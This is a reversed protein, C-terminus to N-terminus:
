PIFRKANYEEFAIAVRNASLALSDGKSRRFRLDISSNSLAVVSYSALVSSIMLVVNIPNMIKSKLKRKKRKKIM